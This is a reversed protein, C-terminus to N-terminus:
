QFMTRKLFIFIKKTIENYLLPVGLVLVQIKTPRRQSGPDIHPIYMSFYNVLYKFSKMLVGSTLKGHTSLVIGIPTRGVRIAKSLIKALYLIGTCHHVGIRDFLFLVKVTQCSLLLLIPLAM